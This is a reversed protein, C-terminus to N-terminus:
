FPLKSNFWIDKLKESTYHLKRNSIIILQEHLTLTKLTIYGKHFSATYIIYPTCDQRYAPMTNM